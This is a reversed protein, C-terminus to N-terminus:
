PPSAAGFLQSRLGEEAERLAMESGAPNAVVQGLGNASAVTGKLRALKKFRAKFRVVDGKGLSESIAQCEVATGFNYGLTDRPPPACPNDSPDPNTLDLKRVAIKELRALRRTGDSDTVEIEVDITGKIKRKTMVSYSFCVFHSQISTADIFVAVQTERPHKGVGSLGVLGLFAHPRVAAAVSGCFLLCAVCFAVMASCCRVSKIGRVM